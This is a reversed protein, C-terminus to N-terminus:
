KISMGWIIMDVIKDLALQKHYRKKVLSFFQNIKMQEAICYNSSDM